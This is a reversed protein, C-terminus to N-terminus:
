TMYEEVNFYRHFARELKAENMVADEIHTEDPDFPFYATSTSLSLRAASTNDQHAWHGPEQEYVFAKWQAVRLREEKIIRALEMLTPDIEGSPLTADLIEGFPGLSTTTANYVTRGRFQELPSSGKKREVAPGARAMAGHDEYGQKNL